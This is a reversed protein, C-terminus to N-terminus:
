STTLSKFVKLLRKYQNRFVRRDKKSFNTKRDFHVVNFLKALQDMNINIFHTDLVELNRSLILPPPAKHDEYFVSEILGHIIKYKYDVEECFDEFRKKQANLLLNKIMNKQDESLKYDKKSIREKKFLKLFIIIMIFFLIFVIIKKLRDLTKVQEEKQEKEELLSSQLQGILDNKQTQTKKNDDKVKPKLSTGKEKYKDAITKIKKIKERLSLSKIDSKEIENELRSLDKYNSIKAKLSDKNVSPDNLKTNIENKLKLKIETNSIMKKIEQLEKVKALSKFSIDKRQDAMKKIFDLQGSPIKELDSISNVDKLVASDLKLTISQLKKDNSDHLKLIEEVEGYTMNEKRLLYNKRELDKNYKSILDKVASDNSLNISLKREQYSRFQQIKNKLKESVLEQNLQKLNKDEVILYSSLLFALSALVCSSFIKKLVRIHRIKFSKLYRLKWFYDNMFALNGLFMLIAIISKILFFGDDLSVNIMFFLFIFFNIFLLAGFYRGVVFVFSFLFMNRIFVIRSISPGLFDQYLYYTIAIFFMNIIITKLNSNTLYDGKFAANKMIEIGGMRTKTVYQEYEDHTQYLYSFNKKQKKWLYSFLVTSLFFHTLNVWLNNSYLALTTLSSFLFILIYHNSMLMEFKKM